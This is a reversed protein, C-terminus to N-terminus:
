KWSSKFNLLKKKLIKSEIQKKIKRFKIRFIKEKKEYASIWGFKTKISIQKIMIYKIM